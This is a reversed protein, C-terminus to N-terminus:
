AKNEFLRRPNDYVIKDIQEQTAGYESICFPLVEEILFCYNNRGDCAIESM